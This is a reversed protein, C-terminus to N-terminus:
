PQEPPAERDLARSLLELAVEDVSRGSAESLSLLAAIVKAPLDLEVVKPLHSPDIRFRAELEGEPEVGEAQVSDIPERPGDASQVSEGQVSEDPLGNSQRQNIDMEVVFEGMWGAAM